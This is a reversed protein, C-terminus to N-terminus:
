KKWLISYHNIYRRQILIKTTLQLTLDSVPGGTKLVEDSGPYAIVFSDLYKIFNEVKNKSNLNIGAINENTEVKVIKIYSYTKQYLKLFIPCTIEKKSPKVPCKYNEPYLLNDQMKFEIYNNKFFNYITNYDKCPRGDKTQNVCPYIQLNFYSFLDLFSYGELTQNVIKLCYSNNLPENKFLERHNKGFKEINCIEIELDNYAKNRKDGIEVESIYQAKIHYLTEDILGGVSFAGYFLENTLNISPFEKDCEYSEYFLLDKREIVRILSCILFSFFSIHIFSLILGLFDM